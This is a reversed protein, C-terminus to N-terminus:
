RKLVNGFGGRDGAPATKRQPAAPAKQVAANVRQAKIAIAESLDPRM